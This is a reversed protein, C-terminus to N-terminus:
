IAALEAELTLLIRRHSLLYYSSRMESNPDVFNLLEGQGFIGRNKDPELQGDGRMKWRAHGYSLLRWNQARVQCWIAYAQSRFVALLEIKAFYLFSKQQTLDVM